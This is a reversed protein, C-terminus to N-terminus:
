VAVRPDGTHCLQIHWLPAANRGYSRFPPFVMKIVHRPKSDHDDFIFSLFLIVNLVFTAVCCVDCHAILNKWDFFFQTVNSFRYVGLELNFRLRFQPVNPVGESKPKKKENLTM